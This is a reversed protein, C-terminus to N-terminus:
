LSAGKHRVWIVKKEYVKYIRWDGGELPVDGHDLSQSLDDGEFEGPGQSVPELSVEKEQVLQELDNYVYETLKSGKIREKIDM